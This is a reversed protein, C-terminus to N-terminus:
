SIRSLIVPSSSAERCRASIMMSLASTDASLSRLADSTASPHAHFHSLCAAARDGFFLVDGAGFGLGASDREAARVALRHGDLVLRSHRRIVLVALFSRQQVDRQIKTNVELVRAPAIARTRGAVHYNSLAFFIEGFHVFVFLVPEVHGVAQRQM